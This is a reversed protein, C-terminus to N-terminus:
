LNKSPGDTSYWSQPLVVLPLQAISWFFIVGLAEPASVRRM